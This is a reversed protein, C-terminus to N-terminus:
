DMLDLLDTGGAILAANTNARLAAIADSQRAAKTYSFPQM